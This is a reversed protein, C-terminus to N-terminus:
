RQVQQKKSLKKQPVPPLAAFRLSAFACLRSSSFCNIKEGKRQTKAGKRRQPQPEAAIPGDEEDTAFIGTMFVVLQLIAECGM